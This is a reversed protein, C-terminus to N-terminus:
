GETVNKFIIVPNPQSGWQIGTWLVHLDFFDVRLMQAHQSFIHTQNDIPINM